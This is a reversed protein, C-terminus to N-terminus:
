AALSDRLAISAERGREVFLCRIAPYRRKLERRRDRAARLEALAIHPSTDSLDETGARWPGAFGEVYNIVPSWSGVKYALLQLYGRLITHKILSAERGAYPHAVESDGNRALRSRKWSWTAM